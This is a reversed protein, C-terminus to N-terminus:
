IKVELHLLVKQTDSEYRGHVAVTIEKICKCASKIHVEKLLDNFEERDYVIRSYHLTSLRDGIKKYLKVGYFANPAYVRVKGNQEGLDDMHRRLAVYGVAGVYIFVGLALYFSFGGLIDIAYPAGSLFKYMNNSNIIDRGIWKGEVPNYHRYNYYILGPEADNYESSWQIPQTVDGEATVEGYPAYTCATRIYGHQGYVECINKTLDWGYTYWTGDKQIALPRTAVPQLTTGNKAYTFGTSRGLADRMETILYPKGGALLSDTQTLVMGSATFCRAASTTIGVTDKQLLAFGDVVVTEITIDSTPKTSYQTRKTGDNYVTWDTSTLGRENISVSRNKLVSLIM